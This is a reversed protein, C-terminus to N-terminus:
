DNHRRGCGFEGLIRYEVCLVWHFELASIGKEWRFFAIEPGAANTMVTM